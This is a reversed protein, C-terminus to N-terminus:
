SRQPYQGDMSICYRMGNVPKAGRLDPLRFNTRGDGGYTLGVVSYLAENNMIPLYQGVCESWGVPVFGFPFLQIQGLIPEM